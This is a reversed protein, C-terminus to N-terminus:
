SAKDFVKKRGLRFKSKPKSKIHEQEGESEQEENLRDLDEDLEDDEVPEPARKGLTNKISKLFKKANFSQKAM